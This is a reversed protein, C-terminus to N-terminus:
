GRDTIRPVRAVWTEQWSYPDTKSGGLPNLREVM